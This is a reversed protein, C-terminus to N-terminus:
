GFGRMRHLPSLGTEDASYAQSPLLGRVQMLYACAVLIRRSESTCHILVHKHIKPTNVFPPPCPSSQMGECEPGDVHLSRQIFSAAENLKVLMDISASGTVPLHYHQVGAVALFTPEGDDESDESESSTGNRLKLAANSPVLSHVSTAATSPPSLPSVLRPGGSFSSSRSSIPSSVASDSTAESSAPTMSLAAPLHPRTCLRSRSRKSRWSALGTGELDRHEDTERGGQVGTPM